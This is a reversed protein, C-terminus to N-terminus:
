YCASVSWLASDHRLIQLSMFTMLAACLTGGNGRGSVASPVCVSETAALDPLDCKKVRFEEICESDYMEDLDFWNYNDYPCDLYTLLFEDEEIIDEFCVVGLPDRVEQFTAM